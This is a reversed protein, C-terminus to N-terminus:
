GGLRAFRDATLKESPGHYMANFIMKQEARNWTRFGAQNGFTVVYGKGVNFTMANAAGNLYQGGILWGSQLQSGSEPYKSVVKVDYKGADTVRFADDGEFWVPNEPDMGWGVPSGTDIRQSLLSGPSYFTSSSTPLVSEIPLDLLQDATNTASGYTVLTGGDNVFDRLRNWGAEGVGFAWSWEPPYSAANLGNVINNKSVESPIVITDYKSRLDGQYDQAKLTQYNVKYQDFMWMLWGAPINNTPKLLGIRTGPKLETGSIEPVKSIASVPIGTSQSQAQLIQRAQATPPVVFTGAPFDRGDDTFKEAARFTPVGQQQLASVFRFVGYSEPGVAYAGDDGPAAPMTVPEPRAQGVPTAQVSFRDKVLDAKFGLLMPLTQATVDYPRQPPGGPYELLEPYHQVELLTKAFAGYPQALYIVYSGAPYEKGGATFATRARQIEVAGTRLIGLVDHIAQPDRQNAPIVYAYADTRSVAKQGVRYFNYLWNYPDNALAEVGSYFTQSTYDLIQRLRWVNQDYPEIFNTDAQQQGIPRTSTYPYALNSVSAAETLMRVSGHYVQYQRSPTWYDYTMGWGVGKMGAATMGRQMAMGLANTQQVTIPDINPDSPSLYPPTFMRPAGTGAQHADQFAQPHYKNQISVMLRSEVQTFMFWDRNDDHGTYKQYLDPYTRAYNTGATAKFYDNVLMLGDPNQTPVMLIIANDLIHRIYASKETALRHAIEIMAQSNGVENAHIGAQIYYIPKGQAALKQAQAQSLGRPDALRNNIALLRDLDRLNKKSSITLMYYPNGLTTDGLKAYDVEDSNKGILQFYSLMKDATALNGDSGIHFGFYDDPAPIGASASVTQLAAGSPALLAIAAIAAIAMRRLSARM